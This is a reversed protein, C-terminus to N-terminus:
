KVAKIEHRIVKPASSFSIMMGGRFKMWNPCASEAQEPPCTVGPTVVYVDGEPRPISSEKLLKEYLYVACEIVIMDAYRIGFLTVANLIHPAPNAGAGSLKEGEVTSLRGVDISHAGEFNVVTRIIEKLSIGKGDFLVVQQGLWEDCSLAPAVATEFLQEPSVLWQSEDCPVGTWDAAGPLPWEISIELAQPGAHFQYTAEPEGTAENLKTAELVGYSLDLGVEIRRRKDRPIKRLRDFRLEISDLIRDDLLRRARKDFDGLVMKRLFVSCTRAFAALVRTWREGDNPGPLQSRLGAMGLQLDTIADAIRAAKDKRIGGIPSGTAPLLRPRPDGPANRQGDDM